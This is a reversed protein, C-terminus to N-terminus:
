SVEREETIIQLFIEELTLDVPKLMLIPYGENSMAYFIPKRIDTKLEAEVLFDFAGPEASGKEILNKVGEVNALAARIRDEPGAVRVLLRNKGSLRHALNEPTDGAVIEGKNIIIVRECVVSVEPLIHSSLIITHEKGLEKILTRIEIIQKPDLGITPEDLIL